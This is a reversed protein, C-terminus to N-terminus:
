GSLNEVAEAVPPAVSVKEFPNPITDTAIIDEFGSALLRTAANRTLLAHTCAAYLTGAGQDRLARAAEVMTGGTDIMDDVLVVTRGEVDLEKPHIEVEDGSLRKKELHDYETKCISAVERALERAGEDPGIVVLDEGEFREALYKGLEEAASVNEAPVDFYELTDPEHLDVTILADANASVARAVARFSVPEGPEFRRDQRSYAMYPVVAIVEEAGNERAADLTIIAKVLNEDQPPSMSHVVVVTGDLEPPVRVIQEGDPFRDEEVPVLEADLEEALRRGLKVGESTALVIM